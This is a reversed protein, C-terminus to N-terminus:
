EEEAEEESEEGAAKGVPEKGAVEHPINLHQAVHHLLSGEVVTAKETHAPFIHPGVPPHDGGPGYENEFHHYATQGGNAAPAIRMEKLKAPSKKEKAMSAARSDLGAM